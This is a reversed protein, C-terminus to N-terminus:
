GHQAQIITDLALKGILTQCLLSADPPKTIVCGSLDEGSTLASRIQAPYATIILVREKGVADCAQKYLGLGDPRLGETHHEAMLDLLVIDGEISAFRSEFEERTAYSRYHVEISRGLVTATFYETGSDTNTKLDEIPAFWEPRDFMLQNFIAGLLWEMSEPEDEFHHITRREM